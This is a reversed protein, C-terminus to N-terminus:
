LQVVFDVIYVELTKGKHPLTNVKALIERRLAEKGETSLMQESTKATLLSIIADRASSTFVPDKALEEGEKEGALGLRFTAKVFRVEDKDALNVLFPDLNLTSRVEEKEKVLKKPTSAAAALSSKFFRFYLYTGGGALVLTMVAALIWVIGFKLKKPPTQEAKEAM